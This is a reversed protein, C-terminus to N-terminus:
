GFRGSIHFIFFLALIGLSRFFFCYFFLCFNGFYLVSYKLNILVSGVLFSSTIEHSGSSYAYGEGHTASITKGPSLDLETPRLRYFSSSHTYYVVKSKTANGDFVKKKHVDNTPKPASDSGKQQHALLHFFIISYQM